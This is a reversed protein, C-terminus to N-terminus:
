ICLLAESWSTTMKTMWILLFRSLSIVRTSTSIKRPADVRIVELCNETGEVLFFRDTLLGLRASQAGANIGKRPLQYGVAVIQNKIEVQFVCALRSIGTRKIRVRSALWTIV